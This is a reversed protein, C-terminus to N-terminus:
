FDCQLGALPESEAPDMHELVFRQTALPSMMLLQWVSAAVQLGEILTYLMIPHLLSPYKLWALSLDTSVATSLMLDARAKQALM